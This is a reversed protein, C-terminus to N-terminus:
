LNIMAPSLGGRQAIGSIDEVSSKQDATFQQTHQQTHSQTGNTFSRDYYTGTLAHDRVQRSRDNYSGDKLQNHLHSM